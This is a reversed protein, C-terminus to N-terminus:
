QKTACRPPAEVYMATAMLRRFWQPLDTGVYNGDNKREENGRNDNDLDDMEAMQDTLIV